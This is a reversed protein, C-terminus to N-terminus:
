GHESGEPQPQSAAPPAPLPRWHTPQYDDDLELGEPDALNWAWAQRVWCWGEGGDDRAMVSLAGNSSVLVVEDLEPLRESVPIWADADILARLRLSEHAAAILAEGEDRSIWGAVHAREIEDLRAATMPADPM